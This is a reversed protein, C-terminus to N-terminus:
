WIAIMSSKTCKSPSSHRACKYVHMCLLLPYAIHRNTNHISILCTSGYFVRFYTRLHLLPEVRYVIVKFNGIHFITRDLVWVFPVDLICLLLGHFSHTVNEIFHRDEWQLRASHLDVPCTLSTCDANAAIFVLPASRHLTFSSSSVLFPSSVIVRLATSRWISTRIPAGEGGGCMLSGDRRRGSSLDIRIHIHASWFAKSEYSELLFHCPLM